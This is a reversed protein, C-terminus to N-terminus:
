IHILSLPYGSIKFREGWAQAGPQDGDLYVPIFLRTKEIFDHRTFVSKKLAQCYPCWVAGWYVLLPKNRIKAEALAQDVTGKFWEIDIPQASSESAQPNGCGSLWVFTLAAAVWRCATNM